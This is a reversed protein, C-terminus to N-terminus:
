CRSISEEALEIKGAAKKGEEARSINQLRKSTVSATAIHRKHVM